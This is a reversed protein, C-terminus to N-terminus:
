LQVDRLLVLRGGVVVIAVALVQDESCVQPPGLQQRPDTPGEVGRQLYGETVLFTSCASRVRTRGRHRLLRRLSGKARLGRGHRFRSPHDTNQLRARIRRSVGRRSKRRQSEVLCGGKQGSLGHLLLHLRQVM